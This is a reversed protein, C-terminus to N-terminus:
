RPDAPPNERAHKVFFRIYYVAMGLTIALVIVSMVGVDTSFLEQVLRM